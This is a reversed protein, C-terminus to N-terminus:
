AVNDDKRFGDSQMATVVVSFLAPKLRGGDNYTTTWFTLKCSSSFSDLLGIFKDSCGTTKDSSVTKAM